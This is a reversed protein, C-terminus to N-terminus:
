DDDSARWAQSDACDCSLAAIKNLKGELENVRRQLETSRKTGKLGELRVIEWQKVQIDGKLISIQKQLDPVLKALEKSSLAVMVLMDVMAEFSKQKKCEPIHLAIRKTIADIQKKTM